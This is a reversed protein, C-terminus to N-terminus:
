LISLCEDKHSQKVSMYVRVKAHKLSLEIIQKIKVMMENKNLTAAVKISKM